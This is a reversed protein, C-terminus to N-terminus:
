LSALGAPIGNESRRFICGPRGPPWPRGRACARPFHRPLASTQRRSSEPRNRHPHARKWIRRGTQLWTVSAMKTPCRTPGTEGARRRAPRRQYPSGRHHLAPPIARGPRRLSLASNILRRSRARPRALRAGRKQKRALFRGGAGSAVRSGASEILRRPRASGPCRGLRKM